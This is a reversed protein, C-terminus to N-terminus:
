PELSAGKRAELLIVGLESLGSVILDPPPQCRAAQEATTEGTLVLVACAGARQAMVIDTYLRDGVMALQGPKLGHRRLIGRLMAVDPKGLVAVPARGTAKELAATISGCDVLVTPQDTPCVADPNTCFYPVGKAIWWAARCLRAYTLSTDFGVLVADPRQAPDDPLLEFQAKALAEALSPTGLVFLRRAAPHNERVYEITAQTSTYIQDPEAHIGLQLLKAQYDSNNKSPNNTLFTYGLGIRDLLALFPLTDAFLTDGRYITGDMDLAVHRLGALNSLVLDSPRM